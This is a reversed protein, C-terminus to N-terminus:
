SHDLCVHKFAKMANGIMNHNTIVSAEDNHRQEQDQSTSSDKSSTPNALAVM